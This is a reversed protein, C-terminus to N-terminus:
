GVLGSDGIGFRSGSRLRVDAEKGGSLRNNSTELQGVLSLRQRFHRLQEAADDLSPLAPLGSVEGSPIESFRARANM